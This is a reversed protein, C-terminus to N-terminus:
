RYWCESAGAPGSSRRQSQDLGMWACRQQEGGPKLLTARLRFGSESISEVSLLYRENSTRVTPEARGLQTLDAAYRGVRIFHTQQESALRLLAIRADNRAARDSHRQLNPISLASIISIIALVILLEILTIGPVPKM